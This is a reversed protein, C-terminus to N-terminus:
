SIQSTTQIEQNQKQNISQLIAYNLAELEVIRNQAEQLAKNQYSSAMSEREADIESKMEVIDREYKQLKLGLLNSKQKLIKIVEDRKNLEDQLEEINRKCERIELLREQRETTLQTLQRQLNVSMGKVDLKTETLETIQNELEKIRLNEAELQEIREKAEMLEKNLAEHEEREIKSDFQEAYEQDVESKREETAAKGETETSSHSRAPSPRKPEMRALAPASFYSPIQEPPLSSLFSSGLKTNTQRRVPSPRKMHPPVINTKYKNTGKEKPTSKEEIPTNFSSSKTTTITQGKNTFFLSKYHKVLDSEGIASTTPRQKAPHTGRSRSLTIDPISKEAQNNKRVIEKLRKELREEDDEVM